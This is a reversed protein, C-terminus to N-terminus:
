TELHLRMNSNTGQHCPGWSAQKDGGGTLVWWQPWSSEGLALGELGKLTVLSFYLSKIRAAQTFDWMRYAM